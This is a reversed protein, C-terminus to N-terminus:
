PTAASPATPAAPAPEAAPSPAAPPPASAPGVAAPMAGAAGSASGSASGPGSGSGSGAGSGAGGSEAAPLEAARTEQAAAVAAKRAADFSYTASAIALFGPEGGGIFSPGHTVFGHQLSADFRFDDANLGFGLNWGFRGEREHSGSEDPASIGRVEFAYEAGSRVTLWEGIPVEVALHLAPLALTHRTTHDDDTDLDPDTRALAFRLLGYGAVSARGLRLAPGLGGSVALELADSEVATDQSADSFSATSGAVNALVGLDLAADLPYFVRTLASAHLRTGEFANVGSSEVAGTEFAFATSTDVRVGEGRTGFGYGLEALVFLNGLGDDEGQATTSDGAAGVGLRLGLEDRGRDLAVMLDVLTAPDLSLPAPFLSAPGDLAALEDLAHPALVDGRHVAAGFALTDSGLTFLGNGTGATGGYSLSILNPYQVLLQPFVFLDDTDEILLSGALGPRRAGAHANSADGLLVAAAAVLGTL